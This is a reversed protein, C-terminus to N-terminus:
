VEDNFIREMKLDRNVWSTNEVEKWGRDELKYKRFLFRKESYMKANKNVSFVKSQCHLIANPYDENLKSGDYSVGCCSM